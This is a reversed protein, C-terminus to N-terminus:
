PIFDIELTKAHFLSKEQCHQGSFLRLIPQYQGKFLRWDFDMRYINSSRLRYSLTRNAPTLKLAPNPRNSCTSAGGIANAQESSFILETSAWSLESTGLYQVEIQIRLDFPPYHDRSDRTINVQLLSIKELNSSTSFHVGPRNSESASIPTLPAEDLARQHAGMLKPNASTVAEAIPTGTPNFEAPTTLQPTPSPAAISQKFFVLLCLTVLSIFLSKPIGSDTKLHLFRREDSIFLDAPLSTM